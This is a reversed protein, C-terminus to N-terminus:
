RCVEVQDKALHDGPHSGDHGKLLEDLIGDDDEKAATAASLLLTALM